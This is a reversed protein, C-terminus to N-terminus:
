KIINSEVDAKTLVHSVEMHGMLTEAEKGDVLFKVGDVSDLSTLASVVADVLFVEQTSSGSLGESSIDVKAIKEEVKVGKFKINEEVANFINEDEPKAKLSELVKAELNDGKALKLEVEREVLSEAQDDSFYVKVTQSTKEVEEIEEDESDNEKEEQKKEDKVEEKEELIDKDEINEENEIEEKNEIEVSEENTEKDKTGGSVYGTTDEGCGALTFLLTASLLGIIIKKKMIVSGKLLERIRYM